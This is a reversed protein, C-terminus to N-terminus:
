IKPIPKQCIGRILSLFNGEMELKSLITMVSPHQLKDLAKGADTSIIMHKEKKLRNNHRIENVSKQINSWGRLCSLCTMNSM